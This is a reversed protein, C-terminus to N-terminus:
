ESILVINTAAPGKAGEEVDFEVEDGIKLDEFRVNELNKMHFFLDKKGTEPKIFGYGKETLTKVTGKM